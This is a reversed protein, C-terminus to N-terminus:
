KPRVADMLSRFDDMKPSYASGGLSVYQETEQVAEGVSHVFRVYDLHKIWEYVGRVKHHNNGFVLCPTGSVACLIMAHLRDTIVLKAGAFLQIKEEVIQKRTERPIEAGHMMDTLTLDYGRASLQSILSNRDRDTLKQESDGRFCVVVGNREYQRKSYDVSLVADPAMIVNARPYLEKMIEFSKQERATITINERNYHPVSALANQEEQYFITQPFIVIRHNPYDELVTRRNMEELQYVDGMNGGGNLVVLADKPMLRRLCRRANWFETITIEVIHEYGCKRLVNQVGMVIAADGINEYTPSAVMYATRKGPHLRRYWKLYHSANKLKSNLKSFMMIVLNVSRQNGSVDYIGM